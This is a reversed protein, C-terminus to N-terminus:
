PSEVFTANITQHKSTESGLLIYRGSGACPKLGPGSGLPRWCSGVWLAARARCGAGPAPARTAVVAGGGLVRRRQAREAAAGVAAAWRTASYSQATGARRPPRNRCTRRCTGTRARSGRAAYGASAGWTCSRTTGCRDSPPSRGRRASIGSRACRQRPASEGREEGLGRCSRATWSAQPSRTRKRGRWGGAIGACWGVGKGRPPGGVRRWCSTWYWWPMRPCPGLRSVPGPARCLRVRQNWKHSIQRSRPFGARPSM